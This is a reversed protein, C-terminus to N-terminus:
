IRWAMPLRSSLASMNSCIAQASCGRSRKSRWLIYIAGTMVATILANISGFRSEARAFGGYVKVLQRMTKDYAQEMILKKEHFLRIEKGLRYDSILDSYYSFLRM